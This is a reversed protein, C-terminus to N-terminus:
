PTPPSLPPSLPNLLHACPSQHRYCRLARVAGRPAPGLLPGPQARGARAGLLARPIAAPRRAPRPAAARAPRRRAPRRPARPPRATRPGRGRVMKLFILWKPTSKEELENRGWERLLAEAEAPPRPRPTPAAAPPARQHVAVARWPTTPSAGRV